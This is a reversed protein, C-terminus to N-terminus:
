DNLRPEGQHAHLSQDLAQMFGVPELANIFPAPLEPDAAGYFATPQLDQMEVGIGQPMTSFGPGIPGSVLAFM